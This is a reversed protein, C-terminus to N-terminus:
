SQKILVDLRPLCIGCFKKCGCQFVACNYAQASTVALCRWGLRINTPLAQLMGKSHLGTIHDKLSPELWARLYTVLTSHNSIIIKSKIVKSKIVKSIIVKSIIVKSIIVKSMIVKSMIVKSIIVKSM